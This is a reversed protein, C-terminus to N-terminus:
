RGLLKVKEIYARFQKTGDTVIPDNCTSNKLWFKYDIISRAGVSFPQIDTGFNILEALVEGTEKEKIRSERRIIYLFKKTRSSELSIKQNVSYTIKGDSIVPDSEWGIHATLGDSSGPNERKWEDISKYQTFGGYRACYYKHAVVTPIWDWFVLMYMVLGAALGWKWGSRGRQRASKVALYVVWISVLLYVVGASLYALGIM